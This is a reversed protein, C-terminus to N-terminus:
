ESTAFKSRGGGVLQDQCVHLRRQTAAAPAAAAAAFRSKSFVAQLRFAFLVTVCGAVVPDRREPTTPRPREAGAHRCRPRHTTYYFLFPFRFFMFYPGGGCGLTSTRWWCPLAAASAVFSRCADTAPLLAVPPTARYNEYSGWWMRTPVIRGCGHHTTVAVATENRHYRHRCWRNRWRNSSLFYYRSYLVYCYYTSFLSSSSSNNRETRRIGDDNVDGVTSIVIIFSSSLLKM